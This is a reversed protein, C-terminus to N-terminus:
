ILEYALRTQLLKINVYKSIDEYCKSVADLVAETKKSEIVGARMQGRLWLVCANLLDKLTDRDEAMSLHSLMGFLDSRFADRCFDKGGIAISAFQPEDIARLVLGYRGDFIEAYNMATKMDCKERNKCVEAACKEIPLDQLHYVSVRSLITPLLDYKDKVTLVFIVGNPPEELMKLLANSSSQNLHEAKKVLIVRKGDTMVSAKNAEYLADRVSQVSIDGSIGSGEIVICDPHIGRKVLQNNDELYCEALEMAFLGGGQGEESQIVIGHPLKGSIVLSKINDILQDNGIFSDFM